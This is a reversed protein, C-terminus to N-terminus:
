QCSPPSHAAGATTDGADPTQAHQLKNVLVEFERETCANLYRKLM